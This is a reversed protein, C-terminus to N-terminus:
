RKFLAYLACAVTLGALLFPASILSAFIFREIAAFTPEEFAFSGTGFVAFLTGCLLPSCISLIKCAKLPFTRRRAAPQPPEDFGYQVPPIGEENLRPPIKM